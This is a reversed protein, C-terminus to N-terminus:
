NNEVFMRRYGPLHAKSNTFERMQVTNRYVPPNMLIYNLATNLLPENEDGLIGMNTYDEYLTIDPALGDVYGTEGNANATTFILPMIAYYHGPNAESRRFNPAPGDYFISSAQFKGTTNAGIQIVEVYPKLGNIVLESASATNSTTLVFVRNLNLSNLAGGGDMSSVFRGVLRQPDTEEFYAQLDPNWHETYFVEGNFQGTIMGALYTATRVSGGGNYRLDIILDTINEAKLLGFADNLQNNFDSTFANYMLYGVHQGGFDLTTAIHVPNESMQSKVLSISEGTSTVTSGDFTALGIEYADLTNLETYNNVTLQAGNISNFILGRTVGKSAADSNPLIYRVYGFVNVDSGPYYVLGYEMGHHVSVGALQAELVRYDNTIYSFRDTPEYVLGDYFLSEPSEFSELFQDLESPSGFRNDALDPVDSKYLYWINMASYIFNKIELSSSIRLNDDMDEFCAGSTFLLLVSLLLLKIKKMKLFNNRTFSDSFYTCFQLNYCFYSIITM